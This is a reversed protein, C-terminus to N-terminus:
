DAKAKLIPPLYGWNMQSKLVIPLYVRYLPIGITTDTVVDFVDQNSLSTATVTVINTTRILLGPPVSVSVTVTASGGPKLTIMAPSHQILWDSSAAKVLFTDESGGMNTLTHVYTVTEGPRAEGTRNPSLRLSVAAFYIGKNDSLTVNGARDVAQVFCQTLIRPGEAGWRDEGVPHLDFTNWEGAGNDYAVAVRDIGSPDTVLVTFSIANATTVAKVYQIAPPLFDSGAETATYVEYRLESYLRETGTIETAALYQAPIV